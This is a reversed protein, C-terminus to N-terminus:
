IEEETLYEMEGFLRLLDEQALPHNRKKKKKKKKGGFGGTKM